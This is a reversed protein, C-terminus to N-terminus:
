DGLADLRETPDKCAYSATELSFIGNLTVTDAGLGLGELNFTLSM